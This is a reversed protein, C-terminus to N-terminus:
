SHPKTEGRCRQPARNGQMDSGFAARLAARRGEQGGGCGRQHLAGEGGAVGEPVREAAQDVVEGPSFPFISIEICLKWGM